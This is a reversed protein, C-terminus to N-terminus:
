VHCCDTACLAQPLDWDREQNVQGLMYYLLEDKSTMSSDKNTQKSTAARGEHTATRSADSLSLASEASSVIRQEDNPIVVAASLGHPADVRVAVDDEVQISDEGPSPRARSSPHQLESM